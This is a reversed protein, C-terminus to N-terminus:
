TDARGSKTCQKRNRKRMPTDFGYHQYSRYLTSIDVNFELAVSVCSAGKNQKHWAKETQEYSLCGKYKRVSIASM